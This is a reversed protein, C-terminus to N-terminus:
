FLTFLKIMSLAGALVGCVFVFGILFWRTKTM